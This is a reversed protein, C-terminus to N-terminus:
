QCAWAGTGETAMKKATIEIQTAGDLINDATGGAAIWTTPLYQFLGEPHQGLVVFQSIDAANGNSECQMIRLMVNPDLGWQTAAAVVQPRWYEVSGEFLVKTGVSIVEPTPDTNSVVQLLQRSTEVGNLYHIEYTDTQQGNVGPTTVTTTGQLINPDNVTQTSYPLTRTLTVTADTVRTVTIAMEATVPATLPVSVTDKLGLSIGAGALASAVTTAQTRVEKTTGDVNITIPTAPIVTVQEGVAGDKVVDTTSVVGTSYKDQPYVKIGAARALLDPSDYASRIYHETTGDVVEVPRARYVNINFVGAPLQTSASPVVIDGEGLKVGAHTLVDGVTKYPSTFLHKQGDVYLSVLHASDASAAPYIPLRGSAVGYSVIAILVGLAVM